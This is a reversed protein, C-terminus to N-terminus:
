PLLDGGDANRVRDSRTAGEPDEGGERADVKTMSGNSFYRRDGVQWEDAQKPLLTAVMRM